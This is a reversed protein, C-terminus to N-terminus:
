REAITLAGWLGEPLPQFRPHQVKRLATYTVPGQILVDKSGKTATKLKMAMEIEDAPRARPESIHVVKPGRTTADIQEAPKAQPDPILAWHSSDDQKEKTMYIYVTKKHVSFKGLKYSAYM